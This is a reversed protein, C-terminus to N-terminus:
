AHLSDHPEYEHNRLSIKTMKHMLEDKLKKTYGLIADSVMSAMDQPLNSKINALWVLYYVDITIYVLTALLMLIETHENGVQSFQKYMIIFTLADLFYVIFTVCSYILM